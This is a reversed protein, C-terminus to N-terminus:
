AAAFRLLKIAESDVVMGGVRKTTYFGVFPKNTYPDRLTRVGIRDVITYGANFNGFAISLSSAGKAPMDEAEIVPFGLLTSAMGAELGPRWLYQGTTDKFTRVEALLAKNMMFVAGARHGAKLSHILTVLADAKNSAAFDGAVGTPVHQLTGDARASDATAATTYDLFGKPRNTGNGSIFAQGEARAFETALEAAIWGEADFFVDDLMQQTAMPNAYLEGWFPTKESMVSTNTEPRAATEGVWGSAAGRRNVLIKYNSTGVSVVNAVQRVPSIEVLRQRIAADIVQPVAFGGDPGSGISHAKAEIERLGEEAGKRMFANFAQKHAVQNPDADGDGAAPRSAKKALEDLSKKLSDLEANIRENIQKVEAETKGARNDNAAKMEEFARGQKELLDIIETSM